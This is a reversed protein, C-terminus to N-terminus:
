VAISASAGRSSDSLEENSMELAKLFSSFVAKGAAVAPAAESVSASVAIKSRLELFYARMAEDGLFCPPTNIGAQKRKQGIMQNGMSSGAIAWFVGLPDANKPADYTVPSLPEAGINQLDRLLLHTQKPPRALSSSQLEVWEEIGVRAAHQVRLFQAFDLAGGMAFPGLEQDLRDHLPRTQHRLHDRLTKNRREIEM